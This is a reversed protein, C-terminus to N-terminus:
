YRPPGCQWVKGNPETVQGSYPNYDGQARCWADTYYARKLEPQGYYARPMSFFGHSMYESPDHPRDPQATSTIIRSNLSGDPPVRYFNAADAMTAGAMLTGSFVLAALIKMAPM